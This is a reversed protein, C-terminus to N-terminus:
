NDFFLIEFSDWNTHETTITFVHHTRLAMKVTKVIKKRVGAGFCFSVSFQEFSAKSASKSKLSRLIKRLKGVSNKLVNEYRLAGQAARENFIEDFEASLNGFFHRM